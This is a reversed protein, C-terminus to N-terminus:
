QEEVSNLDRTPQYKVSVQNHDGIAIGQSNSINFNNSNTTKQPKFVNVVMCTPTKPDQHSSQAVQGPYSSSRNLAKHHGSNWQLLEKDRNDKSGKIYNREFELAFFQQVMKKQNDKAEQTGTELLEPCLLVAPIEPPVPIDASSSYCPVKSWEGRPESTTKAWVQKFPPEKHHALCGPCVYKIDCDEGPWESLLSEVRNTIKKLLIWSKEFDKGRVSISVLGTTMGPNQKREILVLNGDIKTFSGDQWDHRSSENFCLEQSHLCVQVNEFFNTPVIVLFAFEVQLTIYGTARNPWLGQLNEPSSGHLFWPFYLANGSSVKVSYCLNFQKLLSVVADVEEETFKNLLGKLMKLSLIGQKLFSNKDAQFEEQHYLSFGSAMAHKKDRRMHELTNGMDHDFVAKLFEILVAQNRFVCEKLKSNNNFWLVDGIRHMYKLITLMQAPYKGDFNETEQVDSGSRDKTEPFHFQYVDYVIPLEVFMEKPGSKMTAVEHAFNYWTEPLTEANKRALAMICQKLKPYGELNMSSIMYVGSITLINTLNRELKEQKGKLMHLEKDTQHMLLEGFENRETETKMKQCVSSGQKSEIEEISKKVSKLRSEVNCKYIKTYDNAKKSVFNKISFIHESSKTKDKFSGVIIVKVGPTRAQLKRLYMGIYKLYMEMTPVFEDLSFMVIVISKETLFFPHTIKYIQNGGFDKLELQIDDAHLVSQSMVRTCDSPDRNKNVALPKNKILSQCFTTKGVCTEGIVIVTQRKTKMAKTRSIERQYQIIAKVGQECIGKPPETLPTHVFEFKELKSLNEFNPPLKTIHECCRIDLTELNRLCETVFLPIINLKTKSINLEKLHCMNGIADPLEKLPNKHIRLCELNKLRGIGNHIQTIKNNNMDLWVLETMSLVCMPFKSLKNHSIDLKRMKSLTKLCKPIKQLKCGWLYLEELNQLDRVSDPLTKVPNNAMHLWKLTHVECIPEPFQQLNNWGLHLHTLNPFHNRFSTPCENLENRSVDITTVQKKSGNLIDDPFKQLGQNTLDIQLESHRQLIERRFSSQPSPKKEDQNIWKWLPWTLVALVLTGFFALLGWFSNLSKLLEATLITM